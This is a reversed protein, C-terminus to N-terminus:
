TNRAHLSILGNLFVIFVAYRCLKQVKAAINKESM